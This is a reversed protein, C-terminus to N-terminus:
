RAGAGFPAALPFKLTLVVQAAHRDADGDIFVYRGYLSVAGAVTLFVRGTAGLGGDDGFRLAGGGDVGLALPMSPSRRIIALEFAYLMPPPVVPAATWEIGITTSAPGVDVHLAVPACLRKYRALRAAAADFDDSCMAAFVPPDFMEFSMAQGARLALLPDGSEDHFAALLRAFEDAHLTANDRALLDEPLAARRLVDAPAVGFAHMLLRWAPSVPYASSPLM